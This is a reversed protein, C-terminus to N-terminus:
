PSSPKNDKLLRNIQGRIEIENMANDAFLKLLETEKESFERPEKDVVCVTGINFGEKTVIPAGAYFRLGFEGTVLPNRLLCPEKLADEFITPEADLVALSCLSEGRDVKEVGEMGFNGKFHVSEEAVLSVLGIPASFTKAMINALNTFYQDPLSNLIDFYELAKLRLADNEPIIPKNFTNNM